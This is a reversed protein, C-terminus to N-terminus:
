KKGAFYATIATGIASCIAAALMWRDKENMPKETKTTEMKNKNKTDWWVIQLAL